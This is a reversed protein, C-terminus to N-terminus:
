IQQLNWRQWAGGNSTWQNVNAGDSTSGEYVEAVKGSNANELTYTGDGNDLVIWDQCPHSTDAYQRINDGDSTGASAVELLKGSNVNTFTYTGDGNASVDWEQCPHGTDAYQRVNAGDSTDANAVELFKGSNANTLRYTGNAIEAGSGGGGGSGGRDVPPAFNSLYAQGFGTSAKYTTHSGVSGSVDVDAYNSPLSGGGWGCDAPGSGLRAISDNTSYYNGVFNAVNEIAAHFASGDCPADTVEYSGITDANAVRFRGEAAALFEYTVIGGMSHGLIRITTGPNAQIYGEMWDAFDAGQQRASAEASSPLGSDDWTVATVTETNGLSRITDRLQASQSVSASSGTYGHVNFIVEDEGQPAASVPPIGGRLDVEMISDTDASASGMAAGIGVTAAAATATTKLLTRRDTSYSDDPTREDSM